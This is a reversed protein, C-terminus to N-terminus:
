MFYLGRASMDYGVVCSGKSGPRVRIRDPGPGAEPGSQVLGHLVSNVNTVVMRVEYSSYGILIKVPMEQLGQNQKCLKDLDRSILVTSTRHLVLDNLGVAM